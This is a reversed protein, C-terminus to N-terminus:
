VAAPAAVTGALQRYQHQEDHRKRDHQRKAIETESPVIEGLRLVAFQQQM